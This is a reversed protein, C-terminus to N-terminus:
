GLDFDPDPTIVRRGPVASEDNFSTTFVLLRVRLADEERKETTARRRSFPQAIIDGAKNTPSWGHFAQHLKNEIAYYQLGKRRIDEPQLGSTQSFPAFGLRITMTLDGTQELGLLDDYKTDGFDFLACPFSVSPVLEIIELQGMDQNTYRIDTVMEAVRNECAILLEGFLDNM